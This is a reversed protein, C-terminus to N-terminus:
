RLPPVQLWLLWCAWVLVALLVLALLAVMIRGLLRKTRYPIAM